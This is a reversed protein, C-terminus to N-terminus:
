NTQQVCERENIQENHCGLTHLIANNQVCQSLVFHNATVNTVNALYLYAFYYYKM